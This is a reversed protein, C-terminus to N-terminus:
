EHSTGKEAPHTINHKDLFRDIPKFMPKLTPFQPAHPDHCDICANKSQPGRSRDWFGNMGGHAGHKFATAQPNHCQACLDMVKPYKIATNDALKLTEYNNENHCSYCSLDAHNFKLNQHFKDLEKATNTLNPERTAHCTTCSATIPANTEPHNGILVSPPGTPLNINTPHLTQSAFQPQKQRQSDAPDVRNIFAFILWATLIIAILITTNRTSHKKPPMKM